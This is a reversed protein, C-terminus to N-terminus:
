EKLLQERLADKDVESMSSLKSILEALSPEKDKNSNRKLPKDVAPLVTVKVLNYEEAYKLNAWYSIENSVENQRSSAELYIPHLYRLKKCCMEIRQEPSLEVLEPRLKNLSKM